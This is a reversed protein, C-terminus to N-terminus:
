LLAMASYHVPSIYALYIDKKRSGSVPNVTTEPEYVLYWYTESSTIVHMNIYFAEVAARLTLEDGWTANQAMDKLYAEFEPGEFFMSFFSANIRMHRVVSARVNAHKAETGFLQYSLARFQCNGDGAVDVMKLGLSQLRKTLRGIESTANNHTNNAPTYDDLNNRMREQLDARDAESLSSMRRELAVRSNSRQRVPRLDPQSVLQYHQKLIDRRTLATRSLIRTRQTKLSLSRIRGHLDGSGSSSSSSPSSSSPSVDMNM